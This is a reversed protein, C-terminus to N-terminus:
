RIVPRSLGKGNWSASFELIHLCDTYTPTTLGIRRGAKGGEEWSIVGPSWPSDFGRGEPKHHLEDVSQAM